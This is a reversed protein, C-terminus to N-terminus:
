LFITASGKEPFLVKFIYKLEKICTEKSKPTRYIEHMAAMMGNIDERTCEALNKATLHSIQRMSQLVRLRRIYSLDNAEFHTLLTRFHQLNLQNKCFYKQGGRRHLDSSEMLVSDLNEKFFEYKAKSGYIDDEAM